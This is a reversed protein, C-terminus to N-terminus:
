ATLSLPLVMVESKTPMTSIYQGIKACRMCSMLHDGEERTRRNSQGIEVLTAAEICFVTPARAALARLAAIDQLCDECTDQHRMVWYLDDELPVGLAVRAIKRRCLTM